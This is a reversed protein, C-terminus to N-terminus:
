GVRGQQSLFVGYRQHGTPYDPNLELARRYEREAGAFDWEFMEKIQGLSTHAEALADDLELAKLAAEKGKERVENPPVAGGFGLNGYRDALGSDALAYDPDNAM